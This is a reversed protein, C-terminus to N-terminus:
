MLLKTGRYVEKFMEKSIEKQPETDSEGSTNDNDDDEEKWLRAVCTGLSGYYLQWVYSGGTAQALQDKGAQLSPLRRLEEQLHCVGM